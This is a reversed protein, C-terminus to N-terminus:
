IRQTPSESSDTFAPQCCHIHALAQCHSCNVSKLLSRSSCACCNRSPFGKSWVFSLSKWCNSRDTQTFFSVGEPRIQILWSNKSELAASGLLVYWRVEKSNGFYILLNDIKMVTSSKVETAREEVPKYIRYHCWTSMGDRILIINPNILKGRFLQFNSFQWLKFFM